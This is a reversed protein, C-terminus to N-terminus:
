SRDLEDHIGDALQSLLVIADSIGEITQVVFEPSEENEAHYVVSKAARALDCIIKHLAAIQEPHPPFRMSSRNAHVTLVRTGLWLDFPSGPGSQSQTAPTALGVTASM